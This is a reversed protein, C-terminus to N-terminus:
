RLKTPTVTLDIKRRSDDLKTIMTPRGPVALAHGVAFVRGISTPSQMATLEVTFAVLLDGGALKYSAKVKTGVDQRFGSLAVGGPPVTGHVERTQELRVNQGVMMEGPEHEPLNLVFATESPAGNGERATLVFDLRYM